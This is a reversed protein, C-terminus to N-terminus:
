NKQISIKGGLRTIDRCIDEYGREIFPYGLIMTEGHACLGAIMLAAGGRLEKAEVNTGRLQRVGCVLATNGQVQIDAGMRNLDSVVGFRKEFIRESVTSMGGAISLVTLLPSQLDTPFGPYVSTELHMLPEKADSANLYVEQEQVTLRAGLKELIKLVSAMQCVPVDHLAVKGRTAVGAMLYTGAVIRDSVVCFETGHLEKVGRVVYEKKRNLVIDAGAQKLFSVLETVEPEVAGGSIVSCGNACVAALVANQTAGVSPFPLHIEHGVLAATKGYITDEGVEFEVQLQQLASLHFDIPRAGIVCGGPYYLDVEGCRALLPGMLVVSSRMAKVCAKPLKASLISSADVYLTHEEWRTKCGVYELISIMQYIDVIQPCNHIITIGPIMVTAALIPLAVNKSGQIDVDGDLTNPGIVHIAKM